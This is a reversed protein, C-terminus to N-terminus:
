RSDKNRLRQATRFNEMCTLQNFAVQINTSVDTSITIV